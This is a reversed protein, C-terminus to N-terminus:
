QAEIAEVLKAAVEATAAVNTKEARGWRLGTGDAAKPIVHFHVHFVSQGAVAENNQLVNFGECGTVAKIAHEKVNM